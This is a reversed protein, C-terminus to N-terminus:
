DDLGRFVFLDVNEKVAETPDAREALHALAALGAEFATDPLRALISDARHRWKEVLAPWNHAMEHVVIEHAVAKFGAARFIDAIRNAPPLSEAIIDRVGPFFRVHPFSETQEITGNRIAVRGGQRLVRRCEHAVRNPDQLHHFVMSLFVLDASAAGVPLAEGVGQVFHVRPDAAKKRAEALMKESPEVGVVNADFYAALAATYRGTGAGLDIIDRTEGFPVHRAVRELWLRLVEPRYGRGADYAKPMETRDYDM